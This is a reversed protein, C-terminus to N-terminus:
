LRSAGTSHTIGAHITQYIIQEMVKLWIMLFDKFM